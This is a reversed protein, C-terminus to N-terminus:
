RSTPTNRLGAIIGPLLGTVEGIGMATLMSDRTVVGRFLLWPARILDVAARRAILPDRRRLWKGYFAGHGRSYRRYLAPLDAMQYRALHGVVISPDYVIPVGAKLVRHAWDNDEGATALSPHEDFWGVQPLLDLPFGMNPPFLACGRRPPSTFTFPRRDTKVTLVIGEGEPMVRGTFVARRGEVLRATLRELWDVRVRCDDHTVAAYVTEARALGCNTARSIGHGEVPLHVVDMGRDCLAAVLAVTDSGRRQDAVILRAPWLSGASLADLCGKLLPGGLTPVVVTVAAAKERPGDVARSPARSPGVPVIM